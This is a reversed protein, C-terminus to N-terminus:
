AVRQCTAQPVAPSHIPSPRLSPLRCTLTGTMRAIASAAPASKSQSGGLRLSRGSKRSKLPQSGRVVGDTYLKYQKWFHPKLRAEVELESM